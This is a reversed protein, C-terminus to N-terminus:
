LVRRSPLTVNKKTSVLDTRQVSALLWRQPTPRGSNLPSPPNKMYDRKIEELGLFGASETMHDVEFM